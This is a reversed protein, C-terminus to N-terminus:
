VESVKSQEQILKIYPVKVSLKLLKLPLHKHLSTNLTFQLLERLILLRFIMMIVFEEILM